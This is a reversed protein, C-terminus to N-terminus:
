EWFYSSIFISFIILNYIIGSFNMLASNRKNMTKIFNIVGILVILSSLLSILVATNNLNRLVLFTLISCFLSLFFLLWAAKKPGLLKSYNDVGTKEEEPAEIKRGVEIIFGILYSIAILGLHRINMKTVTVAHSIIYLTLLSMVIMHLMAYLVRNKKLKEGIFFEKAMIIIYTQLIMMIVFNEIGYFTNFLLLLIIIISLMKKVENISILGRQVPRQPSYKLDIDYDKIEDFLRLEFFILFVSVFGIINISSFRVSGYTLFSSLIFFGLYYLLIYILYQIVPFREKQYESLRNIFIKPKNNELPIKEEPM